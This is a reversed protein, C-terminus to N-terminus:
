PTGVVKKQKVYVKGDFRLDVYELSGDALNLNARASALANLANQENGLVYTVRTGSALHADVEDDRFVISSVPSGFTGLQRAFDFATPFSSARSLTAGLPGNSAPLDAYVSFPNITTSESSTAYVVGNADFVYCTASTSSAVFASSDGCWRAVPVRYDVKISLGDFGNRFISIAAIDSHTSSIDARIRDKPFFFTSDRPIVGLYRGQLALMAVQAFSQDAGYMTIHSIRVPKQWLGYVIACLFICFFICLWFLSRRRSRRRREALGVSSAGSKGKRKESLTKELM